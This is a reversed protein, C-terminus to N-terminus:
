DKATLVVMGSLYKMTVEVVKGYDIKDLNNPFKMKSITSYRGCNSYLVADAKERSIKLNSMITEFREETLMSKADAVLEKMKSILEDARDSGTCAKLIVIGRNIYSHIASQVYYTLGLKERLEIYFPSELGYTLMDLGVSLYPYDKASVMKKAIGFVSTKDDSAINVFTENRHNRFHEHKNTKEVEKFGVTEFFKTKERGVEVIRAPKRFHKEYVEVMDKHTFKQIDELKGIALYEGFWRRLVNMTSAYDSDFVCDMYEQCVVNRESEFENKTVSKLGGTIRKFLEEKLDATLYKDLGSFYVEVQESSTYANWGIGLKSLQPYLDKFTKCILHEMLHMTGYRGYLELRSGADFVIRLTTMKLSKKKFVYQKAM